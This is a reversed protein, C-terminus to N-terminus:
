RTWGNAFIVKLSDSSRKLFPERRAGVQCHYCKRSGGAEGAEETWTTYLSTTTAQSITYKPDLPNTERFPIKNKGTQNRLTTKRESNVGLPKPAKSEPYQQLDVLSRDRIKHDRETSRDRM